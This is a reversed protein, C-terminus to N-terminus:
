KILRCMIKAIGMRLWPRSCRMYAFVIKHLKTCQTCSCLATYQSYFFDKIEKSGGSQINLSFLYEVIKITYNRDWYPATSFADRLVAGHDFLKKNRSYISSMISNPRQRYFYTYPINLSIVYSTICFYARLAWHNDEYIIGEKFYLSNSTLWDRKVLKNWAAVPLHFYNAKTNRINNSYVEKASNDSITPVTTGNEHLYAANGIVLEAQPYKKALTYLQEICDESIYDDSDIFFLYKGSAERIGTNRAASLGSNEEHTIFRCEVPGSYSSIISKAISVSDDSGRDDVLICEVAIDSSFRQKLVSELCDKIYERVNYIPIIISIDM